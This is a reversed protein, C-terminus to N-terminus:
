TREEGPRADSPQEAAETPAAPRVFGEQVFSAVLAGSDQHVTGRTLFRGAAVSLPSAQYLLWRNADIPRHFWVTHELTRVQPEDEAAATVSVPTMIVMYDSVFAAACAHLVAQEGLPERVRAWYPHLLARADPRVPRLSCLEVPDNGGLMTELSQGAEPGPVEPLDAAQWDEGAEPRHFTADAVAIVRGQQTVTLRRGAFARSDNVAEAGVRVPEGWRGASLFATRLSKPAWDAGVTAAAARLAIAVTMGGFLLRQGPPLARFRGPEERTLAVLDSFRDTPDTHATSAAATCEAM